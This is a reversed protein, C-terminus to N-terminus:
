MSLVELMFQIHQINSIFVVATAVALAAFYYNRLVDTTTLLVAMSVILADHWHQSYLFYMDGWFAHLMTNFGVIGICGLLTPKIWELAQNKRVLVCSTTILILALFGLLASRSFPKEEIYFMFDYPLWERTYPNATVDVQRPAITDGLADPINLINTLPDERVFSQVWHATKPLSQSRSDYGLELAVKAGATILLVLVLARFFSASGTRLGTNRVLLPWLLIAFAFLNSVTVSAVLVGCFIWIAPKYHRTRAFRLAVLVTLLITLGGLIFHDPISGFVINTFSVSSFAALLSAGIIPVGIQIAVAYLLFTKTAAALPAVLLAVKRRFEISDEAVGTAKAIYGIVRIPPNIFNCVNPHIASRGSQGWGHAFCLIRQNPDTEFLVNYTGFAELSDLRLEIAINM